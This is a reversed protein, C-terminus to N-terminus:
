FFGQYILCCYIKGSPHFEHKTKIMTPSIITSDWYCSELCCVTSVHLAFPRSVALTLTARSTHPTYITHVWTHSTHLAYCTCQMYPRYRCIYLCHRVFLVCSPRFCVALGPPLVPFPIVHWSSMGSNRSTYIYIYIYIYVISTTIYNINAQHQHSPAQRRRAPGHIARQSAGRTPLRNCHHM